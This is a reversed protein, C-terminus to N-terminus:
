DYRLLFMTKDQHEDFKIRHAVKMTIPELYEEIEYNGPYKIKYGAISKDDDFKLEHLERLYQSLSQYDNGFVKHKCYIYRDTDRKM